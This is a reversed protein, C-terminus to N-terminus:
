KLEESEQEYIEDWENEQMWEDDPKIDKAKIIEM